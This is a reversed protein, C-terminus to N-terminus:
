QTQTEEGTQSPSPNMAPNVLEKATADIEQSTPMTDVEAKKMMNFAGVVLLLGILIIAITSPKNM